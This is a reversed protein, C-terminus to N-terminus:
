ASCRLACFLTARSRNRRPCHLPTGEFSGTIASAHERYFRIKFETEIRPYPPLTLGARVDFIMQNIVIVGIASLLLQFLVALIAGPLLSKM